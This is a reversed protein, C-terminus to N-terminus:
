RQGLRFPLPDLIVDAVRSRLFSVLRAFGEYDSRVFLHVDYDPRKFTGAYAYDQWGPHDAWRSLDGLPGHGYTIFSFDANMPYLVLTPRRSFAYDVLKRVDRGRSIVRDNLGVCDIVIADTYYPVLGADGLAITLKSADEYEALRQALLYERQPAEAYVSRGRAAEVVNRAVGLPEAYVALIVAVAVALAKPWVARPVFRLARGLTVMAPMALTALFPTVPYLFRHGVDMLTDVRVYFLTYLVVFVLAVRRSATAGNAVIASLLALVVVPKVSAYYGAISDIGLPSVLQPTNAKIYFPAPLLDGFHVIKWLAYVAVPVVLIAGVIWAYRARLLLRRDSPTYQGPALLTLLFAAALLVAEPRLFFAVLLGVSFSALARATPTQLFVALSVYAAFLATTYIVTEVGLVCLFGLSGLPLFLAVVLIAETPTAGYARRALWALLGCLVVAALVSLVQTVRLPDTGMRIFPALTMVLLFNTYGEVPAEDRNWRLGHGQALNKAYRYSIFADDLRYDRQLLLVSGSSAIGVLLLIWAVIVAARGRASKSDQLRRASSGDVGTM